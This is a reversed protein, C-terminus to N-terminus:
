GGMKKLILPMAEDLMEKTYFTPSKRGYWNIGPPGVHVCGTMFHKREHNIEWRERFEIDGDGIKDPNGEEGYWGNKVKASQSHFVQLFGYGCDHNWCAGLTHKGTLWDLFQSWATIYTRHTSYFSHKDYLQPRLDELLLTDVDFIATWDTSKAAALGDNICARRNFGAGNLHVRETFVPELGHEECIALTEKDEPVTVITWRDFYRKNWIASLRFFDAYNISISVAHLM